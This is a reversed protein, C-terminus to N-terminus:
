ISMAWQCPLNYKVSPPINSFLKINNARIRGLTVVFEM